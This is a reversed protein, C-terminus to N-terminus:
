VSMFTNSYRVPVDNADLTVLAFLGKSSTYMDFRQKEVNDLTIEFTLPNLLNVPAPDSLKHLFAVPKETDLVPSKLFAVAALQVQTEVATDIGKDIGIAALTVNIATNSIAATTPTVEFGIDPVLSATALVTTDTVHSYNEKVIKNLPSRYGTESSITFNKWFHKLPFLYNIAHALKVAISFHNNRIIAAPDTSPGKKAPCSTVIAKGNVIRFLVDGVKGRIKGLVQKEITAM